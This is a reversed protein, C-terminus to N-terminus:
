QSHIPLWLTVTTIYPVDYDDPEVDRWAPVSTVDVDGGYARAVMRADALGIGTGLRGRDGSLRGRYGLRFILGEEIEDKPIPVGRNEFEVFVQHDRVDSRVTIWPHRGERRSWSYKIANHLINGLARIVDSELVKVKARRSDNRQDYEVGTTQAYEALNDLAQRVLSWFEVVCETGPPRTGSTIYDRMARLQRDIDTIESEAQRLLAFCAMREVDRATREVNKLPVNPLRDRPLERLLDVVLHAGGRLADLRSEPVRVIAEYDRFLAALKSLEGWQRDRLGREQWDAAVLDMLEALADGLRAAPGALVENIQDTSPRGAFEFPGPEMQELTKKVAHRVKILASSYTHFVRGVGMTLDEMRERLQREQSVEQVIGVRGIEQGGRNKVLSASVLIEKEVGRYTRLCEKHELLPQGLADESRLQEMFTEHDSVSAYFERIDRGRAEQESDFDFMEVFKRNCYSLTDRGNGSRAEYIGAPANDLIIKYPEQPTVDRLVGIWGDYTGQPDTLRFASASVFLIEGTKKFLRVLEQTVAGEEEIPGTLGPLEGPSVFFEKLPRGVIGSRTEWGLMEVLAGNAWQIVQKTDV